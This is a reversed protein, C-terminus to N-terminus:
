VITSVTVEVPHSVFRCREVHNRLGDLRIVSPCGRNYYDCRITLDALSNSLHLSISATHLNELQVAERCVPCTESVALWQTWCQRCCPHECPSPPPIAMLKDLVNRCIPCLLTDGRLDCTRTFRGAALKPPHAFLCSFSITSPSETESRSLYPVLSYPDIFAPPRGKLTRKPRRGLKPAWWSYCQRCAEGSCPEWVRIMTSPDVERPRGRKTDESYNRRM